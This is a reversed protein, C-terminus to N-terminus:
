RTEDFTLYAGSATACRLAEARSLAQQPAVREKTQFSRREITQAIPLFLSIPVTDTPLSVTGGPDLLSALPVVEERRGGPLWRAQTRAGAASMSAAVRSDTTASRRLASGAPGPLASPVPPRRAPRGGTPASPSRPACPSRARRM